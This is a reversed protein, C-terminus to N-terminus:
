KKVFIAGYPPRQTNFKCTKGEVDFDLRNRQCQGRVQGDFTNFEFANNAHLTCETAMNRFTCILALILCEHASAAIFGM